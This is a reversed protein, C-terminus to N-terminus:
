FFFFIVVKNTRCLPSASIFLTIGLLSTLSGDACGGAYGGSGHCLALSVVHIFTLFFFNCKGFMHMEKEGRRPPAPANVVRPSRLGRPVSAGEQVRLRIELKMRKMKKRWLENSPAALLAQQFIYLLGDAAQPYRADAPVLQSTSNKKLLWHHASSTKLM